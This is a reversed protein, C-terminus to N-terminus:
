GVLEETSLVQDSEISNSNRVRIVKKIRPQFDGWYKHLNRDRKLM